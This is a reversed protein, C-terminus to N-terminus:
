LAIINNNIKNNLNSWSQGKSAGAPYNRYWNLVIWWNTNNRLLKQRISSWWSKSKLTLNRETNIWKSDTKNITSPIPEVENKWMHIDLQEPVKQQFSSFKMEISNDQCRLVLITKIFASHIWQLRSYCHCCWAGLSEGKETM